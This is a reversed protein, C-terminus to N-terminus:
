GHCVKTRNICPVRKPKGNLSNVCRVGPKARCTPCEWQECGGYLDPTRWGGYDEYTERM